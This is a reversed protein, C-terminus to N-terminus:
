RLTPGCTTGPRLPFQKRQELFYYVNLFTSGLLALFTLRFGFELDTQLLGHTQEAADNDIRARLLLLAIMAVFTTPSRLGINFKM